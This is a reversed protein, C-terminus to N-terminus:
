SLQIGFEHMSKKLRDAIHFYNINEQDRQITGSKGKASNSATLSELTM